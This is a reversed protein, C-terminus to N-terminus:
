KKNGEKWSCCINENQHLDYKLPFNAIVCLSLFRQEQLPVERENTELLIKAWNSIINYNLSDLINMLIFLFLLTDPNFAKVDFGHKGGVHEYQSDDFHRQQSHKQVWSKANVNTLQWAWCFCFNYLEEYKGGCQDTKNPFENSTKGGDRWSDEM